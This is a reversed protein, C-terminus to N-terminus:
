DILPNIVEPKKETGYNDRKSYKIYEDHNEVRGNKEYCAVVEPTLEFPKSRNIKEWAKGSRFKNKFLNKIKKREELHIM